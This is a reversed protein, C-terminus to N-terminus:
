GSTLPQCCDSRVQPQKSSARAWRKNNTKCNTSTAAQSDSKLNSSFSPLEGGNPEYAKAYFAMTRRSKAPREGADSLHGHNTPYKAKKKAKKNRRENNPLENEKNSPAPHHHDNHQLSMGRKATKSLNPRENKPAHYDNDDDDNENVLSQEKKDDLSQEELESESKKDNDKSESEM